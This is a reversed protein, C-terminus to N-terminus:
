DEDGCFHDDDETTDSERGDHGRYRREAAGGADIGDEGGGDCCGEVCDGERGVLAEWGSIDAAAFAFFGVPRDVCGAGATPHVAAV